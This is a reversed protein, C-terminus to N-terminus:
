EKKIPASVMAAMQQGFGGFIKHVRRGDLSMVKNTKYNSQGEGVDGSTSNGGFLGKLTMIFSTTRNTTLERGLISSSDPGVTYLDGSETIFATCMNSGNGSITFDIIKDEPYDHMVRIPQHLIKHGWHYLEGCSTLAGSLGRGAKIKVVTKGELEESDVVRPVSEMSHMDIFTDGLGLQGQDNRGWSYIRGNSTLAMSHNFGASVQIIKDEGFVETLRHPVLADTNWNDIIGLRGYEAMGCSYVDGSDSLFLTHSEGCSLSSIKVGEEALAENLSPVISSSYSNNGLQGGGGMRNGNDGWLYARGETDIVGCHSSGCAIDAVDFATEILTPTRLNPRGPYGKGWALLQASSTLGIGFGEGFAIKQIRGSNVLRRPLKQKYVNESLYSDETDFKEHALQFDSGIGWNFIYSSAQRCQSAPVRGVGRSIGVFSSAISLM